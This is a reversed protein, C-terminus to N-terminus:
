TAPSISIRAPQMAAAGAEIGSSPQVRLEFARVLM